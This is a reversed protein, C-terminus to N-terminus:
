EPTGPFARAQHERLSREQRILPQGQVAVAPRLRELFQLRDQNAAGSSAQGAAPKQLTMIRGSCSRDKAAGPGDGLGPKRTNVRPGAGRVCCDM